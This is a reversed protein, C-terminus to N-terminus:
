GKAQSIPTVKLGAEKLALEAEKRREESEKQLEVLRENQFKLREERIEFVKNLKAKWTASDEDHFLTATIQMTEADETRGIVAVQAFAHRPKVNYKEKISADYRVSAYIFGGLILAALIIM